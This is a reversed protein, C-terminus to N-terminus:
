NVGLDVKQGILWSKVQKTHAHTYNKLVRLVSKYREPRAVLHSNEKYIYQFPVILRPQCSERIFIDDDGDILSPCHEKQVFGFLIWWTVRWYVSSLQNYKFLINQDINDYLSVM